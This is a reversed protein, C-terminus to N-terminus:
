QKAKQLYRILFIFVILLVNSLPVALKYMNINDYDLSIMNIVFLIIALVLLGLSLKQNVAISKLRKNM